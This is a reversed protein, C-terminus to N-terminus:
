IGLGLMAAVTLLLLGSYGATEPLEDTTTQIVDSPASSSVTLMMGEQPTAGIGALDKTLLPTINAEQAALTVAALFCNEMTQEDNKAGRTKQAVRM